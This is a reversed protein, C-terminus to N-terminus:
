RGDAQADNRGTAFAMSAPKDTHEDLFSDGDGSARVRSFIRFLIASSVSTAAVAVWASEIPWRAFSNSVIAYLWAAVTIAQVLGIMAQRKSPRPFQELFANVSMAFPLAVVLDVFWHEGVTLASLITFLAAAVIVLRDIPRKLYRLNSLLFYAAAAHYSPMCNRVPGVKLVSTASPLLRRTSWVQHYYNPDLFPPGATPVIHYCLYVVPAGLMFLLIMSLGRRGRSSLADFLAVMAPTNVYALWTVSYFKPISDLMHMAMSPIRVLLRQDLNFMATDYTPNLQGLSNFTLTDVLMGVVLLLGRILAQRREPRRDRVGAALLAVQVVAATPTLTIAFLGEGGSLAPHARMSLTIVAALGLIAWRIRANLPGLLLIGCGLLGSFVLTDHRLHRYILDGHDDIRSRIEVGCLYVTLSVLTLLEIKEELTYESSISRFQHRLKEGFTM